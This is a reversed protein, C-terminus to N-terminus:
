FDGLCVVLFLGHWDCAFSTLEQRPPSVWVGVHSSGLPGSGNWSVVLAGVVWRPCRSFRTCFKARKWSHRSWEPRLLAAPGSPIGLSSRLFRGSVRCLATCLMSTTIHILPGGVVPLATVCDQQVLLFVGKVNGIVPGYSQCGGDVFEPGAHNCGDEGLKCVLM